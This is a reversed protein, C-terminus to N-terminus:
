GLSAVNAVLGAVGILLGVLITAKAIRSKNKSRIVQKSKLFMLPPLVLSLCTSSISGTIGFVVSVDDVLNGVVLVVVFVLTSEMWGALNPIPNGTKWSTLLYHLAIRTTFAVLPFTFLITFCFAILMIAVLNSEREASLSALVSGDVDEGFALYGFLGAILYLFFCFTYSGRVVDDFREPLPNKMSTYVPMVSTHCTFAFTAIPLAVFLQMAGPPQAIVGPGVGDVEIIESSQEALGGVIVIVFVVSIFSFIRLASLTRMLVLPYRRRCRTAAASSLPPAHYNPGPPGAYVVSCMRM